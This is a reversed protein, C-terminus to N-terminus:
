RLLVAKGGTFTEWRDIIIDCYRPDLEMSYCRRGLQECAILTSGSGGFLDLVTEGPKTSNQISRAMLEIPKMTPHLESKMPRDEHWVTTYPNDLIDHLLKKMDEKKMSDIDPMDEFATFVAPLSQCAAIQAAKNM